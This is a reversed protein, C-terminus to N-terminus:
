LQLKGAEEESHMGEWVKRAEEIFIEENFHPAVGPVRAFSCFARICAEYEARTNSWLAAKELFMLFDRKEM